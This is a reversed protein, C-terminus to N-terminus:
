QQQQREGRFARMLINLDPLVTKQQDALVGFLKIDQDSLTQIVKGQEEKMEKAETLVQERQKALDNFLLYLIGLSLIVPIILTANSIAWIRKQLALNSQQMELSASSSPMDKNTKKEDSNDGDWLMKMDGRVDTKTNMANDFGRPLYVELLALIYDRVDSNTIGLIELGANLSNYRVSVLNVVIYSTQSKVEPFNGRVKENLIRQLENPFGAEFM